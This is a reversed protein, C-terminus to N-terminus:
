RPLRRGGGGSNAHRGRAPLPLFLAATAVCIWTVYKVAELPRIILNLPVDRLFPLAAWAVGCLAVFTIIAHAAHFREWKGCARFRLTLARANLVIALWAIFCSNM